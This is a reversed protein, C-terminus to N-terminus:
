RATRGVLSPAATALVSASELGIRDTTHERHVSSVLSPRELAQNSEDTTSMVM